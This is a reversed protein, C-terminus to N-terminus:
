APVPSDDAKAVADRLLERLASAAELTLNESRNEIYDTLDAVASLCAELLDPAAAILRANLDGRSGRGVGLNACTAVPIIRFGDGGIVRLPDSGSQRWPGPTRSSSSM